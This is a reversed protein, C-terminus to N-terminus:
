TWRGTFRPVEDLKSSDRKTWGNSLLTSDDCQKDRRQVSPSEVKGTLHRALMTGQRQEAEIESSKMDEFDTADTWVSGRGGNEM